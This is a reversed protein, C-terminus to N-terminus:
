TRFNSNSRQVVLAACMSYHRHERLFNLESILNFNITADAPGNPIGKTVKENQHLKLAFQGCYYTLAKVKLTPMGESFGGKVLPYYATFKICKELM